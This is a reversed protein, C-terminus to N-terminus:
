RWKPVALTGQIRQVACKLWGTFELRKAWQAYGQQSYLLIFPCFPPGLGRGIGSSGVLPSFALSAPQGPVALPNPRPGGAQKYAHRHGLKIRVPQARATRAYSLSFSRGNATAASFAKPTGSFGPGERPKHPGTVLPTFRSSPRAAPGGLETAQKDLEGYIEVAGPPRKTIVDVKM